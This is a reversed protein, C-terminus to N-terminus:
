AAVAPRFTGLWRRAADHANRLSPYTVVAVPSGDEFLHLEVGNVIRVARETIIRQRPPSSGSETFEHM